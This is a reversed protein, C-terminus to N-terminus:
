QTQVATQKLEYEKIKELLHRKWWHALFFPTEGYGLNKEHLLDCIENWPKKEKRAQSIVKVRAELHCANHVFTSTPHWQKPMSGIRQKCHCCIVDEFKSIIIKVSDSDRPLNLGSSFEHALLMYHNNSCKFTGHGTTDGMTYGQHKLEQGCFCTIELDPPFPFYLFSRVLKQERTKLEPFDQRMQAKFLHRIKPLEDIAKKFERTKMIPSNIRDNRAFTVLLEFQGYAMLKRVADNGQLYTLVERFKEDYAKTIEQRSSLSM